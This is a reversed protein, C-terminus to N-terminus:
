AFGARPADYLRLTETVIRDLGFEQAARVRAAAALTDRLGPDGIVRALAHALAASDRAPVLLGEIGDRVVERCGPVDTTVICRGAAAAEILARPLGERYSPLCVIAAQRLVEAMDARHGWWEVDGAAVWTEITERSLASENGPDLGGVLAFRAAIRGRRIAGAAEAFEVVGKDRLMRAPLIVLPPGPPVPTPRFADLDVGSGPIIAAKASIGAARYAELDDANQFLMTVAARNCGARLARLVLDRRLAAGPGQALYLTGLGTVANVVRPVGLARAVLSGYLVPKLTVHHVIGPRLSRYLSWLARLADLDSGSGEGRAFPIPHVQIGAAAVQAVTDDPAAALHVDFGRDRARRALELRHSVFFWTANVVYLLVPRRSATM